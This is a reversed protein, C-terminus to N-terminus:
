LIVEHEFAGGNGERFMELNEYDAEDYTYAWRGFGTETVGHKANHKDCAENLSDAHITSWGGAFPFDKSRGYTFYFVPM